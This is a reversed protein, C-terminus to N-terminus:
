LSLAKRVYFTKTADLRQAKLPYPQLLLTMADSVGEQRTVMPYDSFPYDKETWSRVDDWNWHYHLAVNKAAEKLTKGHVMFATVDEGKWPHFAVLGLSPKPYLTLSSLSPTAAVLAAVARGLSGTKVFDNDAKHNLQALFAPEQAFALHEGGEKYAWRTLATRYSEGQHVRYTHTMKKPVSVSKGRKVPLGFILETGDELGSSVSDSSAGAKALKQKLRSTMVVDHSKALTADSRHANESWGHVLTKDSPSSQWVYGDKLRFGVERRVVDEELVFAQGGMVQLAERLSMHGMNTQGLPLPQAYLQTEASSIPTRLTMGSGTLLFEMGDKISMQSMVPLHADIPVGLIDALRAGSARQEQVYRSTHVVRGDTLDPATRINLPPPIPTPPPPTACGSLVGAMSLALWRMQM